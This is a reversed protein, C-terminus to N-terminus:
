LIMNYLKPNLINVNFIYEFVNLMMSNNVKYCLVNYLMSYLM